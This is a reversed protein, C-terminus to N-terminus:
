LLRERIKLSIYDIIMVVVFTYLILALVQDYRFFQLSQTYLLGIGGAGVIGLIAAARVNIEFTYLVYSAFYPLIQPAVGFVIWQIKNAGAATMAQLPGPDINEVAEFSLKAIIGISFISLAVIGAMTNFGLIAAFIAALLLDPVTRLTNLIIRAPQYVWPSTAVNRACLLLIPVSLIAGFTTGILAMRITDLMPGTARSFFEWDPPLMQSLIMSMQSGNQFLLLPNAEISYASLAVIAALLAVTTYFKTRPPKNIQLNALQKM